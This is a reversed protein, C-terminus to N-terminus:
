NNQEWIYLTYTRGQMTFEMQGFNEVNVGVKSMFRQVGQLTNFRRYLTRTGQSGVKYIEAHVPVKGSHVLESDRAKLRDIQETLKKAVDEVYHAPIGREFNADGGTFERSLASIKIFKRFEKM